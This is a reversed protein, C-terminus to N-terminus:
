QRILAWNTWTIYFIEGDGGTDFLLVPQDKVEILCAFGWKNVLSKRYVQNDYIITIKM